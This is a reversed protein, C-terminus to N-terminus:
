HLAQNGRLHPHCTSSEQIIGGLSNQGRSVQYPLLIPRETELEAVRASGTCANMFGQNSERSSFGSLHFM